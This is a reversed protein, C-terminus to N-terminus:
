YRRGRDRELIVDLGVLLSFLQQFKEKHPPIVRPGPTAGTVEQVGVINDRVEFRLHYARALAFTVGIGLGFSPSVRTDSDDDYITLLV